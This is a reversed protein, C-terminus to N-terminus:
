IWCNSCCFTLIYELFLCFIFTFEVLKTAWKISTSNNMTRSSTFSNDSKEWFHIPSRLVSFDEFSVIHPEAV